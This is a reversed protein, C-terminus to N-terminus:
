PGNIANGFLTTKALPNSSRFYDGRCTKAVWSGNAYRTLLAPCLYKATGIKYEMWYWGSTAPVVNLLTKKPKSSKKAMITNPKLNLCSLCGNRWARAHSEAQKGHDIFLFRQLAVKGEALFYSWESL